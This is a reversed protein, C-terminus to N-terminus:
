TGYEYVKINNQNYLLTHNTLENKEMEQMRSFTEKDGIPGLMTYDLMIYDNRLRRSAETKDEVLFYFRSVHQSIAASWRIKKATASLFNPQHPIGLVSINYNSPVNELIWEAAQYQPESLTTFFGDSTNPNYTGKNLIKSAYAMNVFFLFYIFVAVLGYKLYNAYKSPIKLLSAAYVIGIATLPAFIHATASLSRHLFSAKGIIDRHLVFYLSILWAILFLDKEERRLTLFLIGLLLFPLTWLGHMDSFSFYNEPVSGAYDKPNLSWHFLRALDFSSQSQQTQVDQTTKIGFRPFINLTQYPFLLFIILFIIASMAVHRFNFIFKKQKVALIAYLIVLGAVSHFFVLPHILLDIGLFLATFYIYIPKNDNKSLTILYKYFCYLIIPIFAYAFREPWQGWMYPMFDRPSFILLLSSLIAPLFGFLSNIVFYVTIIIFTALVTNLLYISVVRSGGLVEMVALSSHFTPAYWLKHPAFKNDMGYRVDIYQPLSFVSKDNYAMYDAIEFHSMADYEGYPLKREQYPQSWFYIGFLYVLIFIFTQIYNKNMKM